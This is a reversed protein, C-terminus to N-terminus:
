IEPAWCCMFDASPVKRTFWGSVTCHEGQKTLVGWRESLVVEGSEVHHSSGAAESMNPIQTVEDQQALADLLLHSWNEAHGSSGRVVGCLPSVPAAFCLAATRQKSLSVTQAWIAWSCLLVSPTQSCCSWGSGLDLVGPVPQTGGKASWGAFGWKETGKHYLESGRWVSCIRGKAEPSLKGWVEGLNEAGSSIRGM